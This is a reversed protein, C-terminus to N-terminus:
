ADDSIWLLSSAEAIQKFAAPTKLSQLQELVAQWVQDILMTSKIRLPQQRQWLGEVQLIKEVRRQKDLGPLTGLREWNAVTNQQVGVAKALASQTLGAAARRAILRRNSERQTSRTQQIAPHLQKSSKKLQLAKKMRSIMAEDVSWEAALVKGPRYKLIAKLAPRAVEDVLCRTGQLLSLTAAKESIILIRNWGSSGVVAAHLNQDLKM